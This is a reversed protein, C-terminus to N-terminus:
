GDVKLWLVEYPLLTLKLKQNSNIHFAKESIIDVAVGITALGLESFNLSISQEANTVNHICLIKEEGSPATRILIFLAKNGSHCPTLITQKGNPHFSSHTTRKKILDLYPFFVKYRLSEPNSLDKELTKREFKERNISRYRGTKEVGQYYNRSGFLSHVYIGPVGQLSLMIARSALFRQTQLMIPENVKPDSLADFYSINLEYASESGDSNVKYSIHGGHASVRKILSSIEIQNLIGEVPRVGIGDHSALFNFFTTEETLTELDKAWNSLHTSDGTIFTNLMLPPLPFQYVMQAENFGNGFYSINEEHPVNTETIIITQPAVIDLILRFIKILRHVGELHICATGLKKWVYAIADLRIMEAGKEVYLLLIKIIELLVEPTGFNLDIQDASFTTWVLKEGDLTEVPTLLPTARPRTVKSIDTGPEVTIFYNVYRPDNRLYGQFWESHQSIHNIVADFMLGFNEGLSEIDEWSGLEPDVRAYDIISFGDDASYPFFPLIHVGSLVDRAYTNLVESLSQLLPADGESIQDGYTILIADKETVRDNTANAQLHPNREKFDRLIAEIKTLIQKATEKGYLYILHDQIKNEMKM